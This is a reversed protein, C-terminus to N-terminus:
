PELTINHIQKGAKVEYTLKSTAPSGYKAPPPVGTSGGTMPPADKPPPKLGGMGLPPKVLVKVSGAPPNTIVYTGDVGILTTAEKNDPYLFVVSGAVAANNLTVKGTVSNKADSGGGCGVLGLLIAFFSLGAIRVDRLRLSLRTPSFSTLM